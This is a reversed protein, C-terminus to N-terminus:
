IKNLELVFFTDNSYRVTAFPEWSTRDTTSRDVVFWDVGDDLMQKAQAATPDAAFGLTATQRGDIEPTFGTYHTATAQLWTRRHMYAVLLANNTRRCTEVSVEKNRFATCPARFLEIEDTAIKPWGFNSAVIDIEDTDSNIWNAINELDATALYTEGDRSFESHKRQITDAWNTAAFSLGMVATVAVLKFVQNFSQKRRFRNITLTFLTVTVLILAPTYVRMSRIKIAYPAGSNISPILYSLLCLAVGAVVLYTWVRNTLQPLNTNSLAALGLLTSLAIAAQLFYLNEGYASLIVAALVTGAVLSGISLLHIFKIETFKTQLLNALILVGPLIAFAIVTLIGFLDVYKESLLRADGQLQWFFDGFRIEFVTKGESNEVLVFYATLAVAISSLGSVVTTKSVKSRVVIQVALAFAIACVLIVGHMTKSLMTSASLVALVIPEFRLLKQSALLLLFISAFLMATAYFQSPSALFTIKTGYGWLPYSSATMVILTSLFTRFKSISYQSILTWTISTILLVFVVPAVRTLVLFVSADSSRDVLGVWAYTFWHYRTNTGSLLVYDGLGWDALSRSLSQLFPFDFEYMFWWIKPRNAIMFMGVVVAGLSATRIAFRSYKQPTAISVVSAIVFLVGSPFLWFWETGLAMASIAVIPLFIKRFAQATQIKPLVITQNKQVVRFVVFAILLPVLWGIRPLQLNVFIQDFITSTVIGFVGGISLLEVLAVEDRKLILLYILCGAILQPALVLFVKLYDM